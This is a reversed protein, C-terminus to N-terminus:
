GSAWIIKENVVALGRLSAKTDVTQKQWQADAAIPAFLLFLFLLRSILSFYAQFTSNYKM